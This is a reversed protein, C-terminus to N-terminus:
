GVRREESRAQRRLRRARMRERIQRANLFLPFRAPVSPLPQIALGVSKIDGAEDLERVVLEVGGCAVRDGVETRGGLRGEIFAAIPTGADGCDGAGEYTHALDGLTKAPDITFEGFFDKDDDAVEAPSAFLRDLLRTYRPPVFLYVRDGAQPRGAYHYGM